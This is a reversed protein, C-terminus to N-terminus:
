ASKVYDKGSAWKITYSIIERGYKTVQAANLPSNFLLGPTGMFGYLSNIFIKGSQDLHTYKPDSTEKALKKNKLRETTYYKLIKLLNAKPDKQKDYVEYQIMISPYMSRIDLKICNKYIGPWSDSIAGEFAILESAKPLSWGEQLYSRIMVSNLQSGSASEILAQFTKPVSQVMYFFPPAMLDFLALSDDSDDICYNKIKIWEDPKQYNFRIQSADYFQRGAKELGEQKIIQKLGYSEYKKGIDYKYSLFLTDIIERGYVKSKHYHLDRSGDVRYKSEYRGIRLPFDNRGLCLQINERNAIFNLYPLDFGQINHGLLISPNKDKVWACWALLMEGQSEYEDYAFLKKEIKDKFRYTNSILLIQSEVGHKLTTTELDFSLVSLDALSLGKYYTYGERCMFAEQANRIAFVDNNRHKNLTDYFEKNSHFEHLYSYHLNGALQVSNQYKKNTLIFYTNPVFKVTDDQLYLEAINDNIEINVINEQQNKGFILNNM